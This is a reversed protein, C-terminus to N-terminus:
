NADVLEVVVDTLRQAAGSEGRVERLRKRIAELQKPHELYDIIKQAIAVPELKGILEPVVEENAWINPWATFGLNRLMYWNIGKAFASGVGPLNALIGPVGNWARMADLQQTPLLVLMPVALAGLEATNAGVTTVCIDCQALRDYAPFPTHLEVEAGGATKLFAPAGEPQVLEVAPSGLKEVMPNNEPISYGVLEDLSLTPAVPIFCRAEPRQRHLEEAIILIFPVGQTLKAAKSGALLGITETESPPLLTTASAEVMLDGVVTCKDQYRSPIKAKSDERRLAFRDIISPWRADWEAYTVTNYSLRKGIVVPFFQDGGLFIVVGRDRWDWGVATKGWLLFPWFHEVTQIRDIESYCRAIAGEEGSANPCPSLVLSIRLQERDEGLRQRLAQVVPRVWTVLEGPGNSLILIDLPQKPRTPTLQSMAIPEFNCLRNRAFAESTLINAIWM